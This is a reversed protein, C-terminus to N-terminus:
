LALEIADNHLAREFGEIHAKGVSPMSSPKTNLM